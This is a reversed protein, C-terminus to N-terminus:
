ICVSRVVSRAIPVPLAGSQAAGTGAPLLDRVLEPTREALRGVLDGIEVPGPGVKTM